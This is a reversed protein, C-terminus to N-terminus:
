DGRCHNYILLAIVALALMVAFGILMTLVPLLTEYMMIGIILGVILLLILGLFAIVGGLCGICRRNGRFNCSNSCNCNM